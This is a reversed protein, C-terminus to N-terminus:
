THNSQPPPKTRKKKQQPTSSLPPTSNVPFFIKSLPKITTKSTERPSLQMRLCSSKWKQENEQQATCVYAHDRGNRNYMREICNNLTEAKRLEVNYRILDTLTYSSQAIIKSSSYKLTNFHYLNQFIILNTFQLQPFLIWRDMVFFYLPGMIAHHAAHFHCWKVVHVSMWLIINKFKTSPKM